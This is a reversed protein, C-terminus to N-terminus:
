PLSDRLPAEAMRPSDLDLPPSKDPQAPLVIRVRTGEGECSELTLTGGHAEALGKAIPLGLGTGGYVRSISSDAQEFPQLAREMAQKSMGIGHDEVELTLNEVDRRARVDVRGGDRSFKVSNSVINLLAQKLAREDGVFFIEENPVSAVLEIDRKQAQERVMALTDKVMQSIQVPEAALELKGVEIKAMDLVDNIISLLLLGSSHIDTVYELYKKDAMPGLIEKSIIEAFGVIANLPTRLEHSMNALFESKARNASEAQSRAQAMRHEVAKRQTIDSYLSVIGGPMARRHIQLSRGAATIREQVVPLNHFMREFREQLTIGGDDPGFDGRAMQFELIRHLSAQDVTEPPLELLEVFRSNLALLRGEQDFSSLGEGMNELSQQLLASQRRFEGESASLQLITEQQRKCRRMSSWGWASAALAFLTVGTLLWPDIV